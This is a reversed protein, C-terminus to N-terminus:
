LGEILKITYNFYFDFDYIESSSVTLKVTNFNQEHFDKEYKIKNLFELPVRKIEFVSKIFEKNEQSYFYERTEPLSTLISYIDFFDRSRPKRNTPVIARYEDMQQCIARLKENIIMVPTYVYISYGDIEIDQKSPYYEHKSIDIKYKKANDRGVVVANKRLENINDGFIEKKSNEIVKFEICYGGWFKGIEINSTLPRPYIKFDFLYYNHEDFTEIFINKLKPEIEDLDFDNRMSVDIDISARDHINYALELATGGKLVFTDMLNDDTFLAIIALKKIKQLTTNM